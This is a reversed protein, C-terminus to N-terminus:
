GFCNLVKNTMLRELQFMSMLFLMPPNMGVMTPVSPKGLNAHFIAAPVAHGWSAAATAVWGWEQSYSRADTREFGEQILLADWVTNVSLHATLEELDGRPLEGAHWQWNKLGFNLCSIPLDGLISSAGRASIRVVDGLRPDDTKRGRASELRSRM